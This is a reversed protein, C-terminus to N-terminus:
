GTECDDDVLHSRKERRHALTAVGFLEEAIDARPESAALAPFTTIPPLKFSDLILSGPLPCPIRVAGTCALAGDYVREVTRGKRGEGGDIVLGSLWDEEACGVGVRGVEVLHFVVHRAVVAGEQAVETGAGVVGGEGVEDGGGGEGGVGDFGGEVGGDHGEFAEAVGVDADGDEVDDTL